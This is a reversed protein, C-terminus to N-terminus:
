EHVTIVIPLNGYAPIQERPNSLFIGSSPGGDLNLAIDLNLDSNTLYLSLQHLTFYGQDAVMFLFRGDRDRAVVTRRAQLNDEYEAPFGLVGGPKVLLPFSQLAALLPEGFQYPQQALSRLQPGQDTVAFMGGFGEYSEGIPQGNIVTLGTPIYRANEERFYGGNVVILAGTVAAWATLPEGLPDYNVDFRFMAPDVRLIYLSEVWAGQADTVSLVRRELGPRLETWGTDPHHLLTALSVITPAPTLTPAPTSTATSTPAAETPTLLPPFTPTPTACAALTLVCFLILPLNRKM